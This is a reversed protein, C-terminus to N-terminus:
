LGAHRGAHRTDAALIAGHMGARDFIRARLLEGFSRGTREQVIDSLLRFNQNAYSYRTGPAFQLTRTASIVRAAECAGFESEAPAGHLMAVAWYDRLGSQNHCLHAASPARGILHPLRRAVDGDLVSPDAFADLVTACTFQKTISCIRFLTSPTFAIRQEANAYGWAHRILTHGHRLVACAGGPGPYNLALAEAAQALPDTQM